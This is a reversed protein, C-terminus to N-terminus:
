DPGFRELITGLLDTTAHDKPDGCIVTRGGYSEVVEREPVTSVTYDTGKAHVDPKLIELIPAVTPTDFLVIADIMALNALIEVREAQPIIPRSPGKSSRVSHDTNVAAILCDGQRSADTLYRLHGVHLLDFAGNVLAITLGDKRWLRCDESIQELSRLKAMPNPQVSM